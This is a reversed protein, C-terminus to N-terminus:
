PQLPADAILLDAVPQGGVLHGQIIRELNDPTCDHYWTGDPYVVAVPGAACIRLCHARTRLVGGSVDQLNLEGLRRKLYDWSAISQGAPACKGGAVCLFVHRRQTGLQLRTVASELADSRSSSDSM